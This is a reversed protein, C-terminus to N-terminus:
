DHQEWENSTFLRLMEDFYYRTVAYLLFGSTVVLATAMVYAPVPKVKRKAKESRFNYIEAAM